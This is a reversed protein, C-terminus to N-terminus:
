DDKRSGDLKKKVLLNWFNHWKPSTQNYWWRREPKWNELNDNTLYCAIVFSLMEFRHCNIKSLLNFHTYTQTSFCTHGGPTLSNSTNWLLVDTLAIKVWCNGDIYEVERENAHITTSIIISPLLQSMAKHYICGSFEKRSTWTRFLYPM